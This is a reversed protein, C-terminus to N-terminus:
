LLNPPNIEIKWDKIYRGRLLRAPDPGRLVIQWRYWGALRQFFCPAPGIIETIHDDCEGMWIRIDRALQLAAQEASRNNQHQYELRVLRSYPPYGLRRRYDLERQYFSQYNQQAAAQIVYHEPQFTQLIVQGGLPSRGARGAVQTLIQFTRENARYDPLNLGVDALVVGVLTVLPLDLGKAIMQTGILIDARHAAFHGLIIEHSGKQRTTDFDWRLARVNSFLKLLEAEVRETGMGYQRIQTSGCQPCTRPMKRQYRCHHCVLVNQAKEIHYTLPLDCNPCKATYGCNRCFVYTGTGRRNLFLIAQQNHKLIQALKERLLSSFISRNGARLEQRMDVLDVHPLEITEAEGELLHYKSTGVKGQSLLADISQRHALIRNPLSLSHIRGQSALFTTTINPTASGLLCVGGALRAYTIAAQVANYYPLNERQYYSDDHCEDVVVLGLNPFPTFLASRAGIIVSLSGLRARRWTDYREGTSLRSHVLGTIGPFRNLFRRLTQPTLSIEPVLIIAQCGAQITKEVANLYIETKGSGTVGHILLPAVSKGAGATSLSNEVQEWIQEQDKTLEISSPPQPTIQDLPDRWVESESLQILEREALAYLDRLSGGSDAYLWTVDVPAAERILYSLIRQRRTLAQSGARGLTPMAQQALDISCALQATRIFKPRVKPPALHSESAILGHKILTRAALRWNTHPLAHDIQSGRLKGRKQLLKLVREQASTIEPLNRNPIEDRLSFLSDAHQVLGPPLMLEISAFLPSLTQDSISKALEIQHFTLVAAPDVLELVPRTEAVAPAPKRQLVVGQVTQKGFPITVLHGAEVRDELEPPLHYDFVGQVQPVSVAIEVYIPM